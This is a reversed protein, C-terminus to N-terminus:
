QIGGHIREPTLHSPNDTFWIRQWEEDIQRLDESQIILQNMRINPDSSYENVLFPYEGGALNLCAWVALQTWM